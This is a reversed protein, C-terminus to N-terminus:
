RDDGSGFGSDAAIAEIAKCASEYTLLPPGLRALLARLDIVSDPGWESEIDGAAKALAAKLERVYALLTPIDARAHAIFDALPRDEYVMADADEDYQAVHDMESLVPVGDADLIAIYGTVCGDEEVTWPGAPLANARAEIADLDLATM